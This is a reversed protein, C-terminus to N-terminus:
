QLINIKKLKYAFYALRHSHERENALKLIYFIWSGAISATMFETVNQKHGDGSGNCSCISPIIYCVKGFTMKREEFLIKLQGSSDRRVVREVSDKGDNIRCDQFCVVLFPDSVVDLQLRSINDANVTLSYSTCSLAPILSIHVHHTGTLAFAANRQPLDFNVFFAILNRSNGFQKIHQIDLAARNGHICHSTLLRYCFLDDFFLGMIEQSYLFILM